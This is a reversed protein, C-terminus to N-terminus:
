ACEVGRTDVCHVTAVVALALALTAYAVHACGGCCGVVDIQADLHSRREAMELDQDRLLLVLEEEKHARLYMERSKCVCWLALLIMTALGWQTWGLVYAQTSFAGLGLWTLLMIEQYRPAQVWCPRTVNLTVWGHVCDCSANRCVGQNCDDDLVCPARLDVVNPFGPLGRAPCIM